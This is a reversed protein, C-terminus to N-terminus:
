AVRNILFPSFTFMCLQHAYFILIIKFRSACKERSLLCVYTQTESWCSIMIKSGSSFENWMWASFSLIGESTTTLGENKGVLFFLVAKRVESLNRGCIMGTAGATRDNFLRAQRGLKLGIFDHEVLSIKSVVRWIGFLVMFSTVGSRGTLRVLVVLFNTVTLRVLVVLFNTVELGRKNAM